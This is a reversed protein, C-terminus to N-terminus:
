KRLDFVPDGRGFDLMENENGLDFMGDEPKSLDSCFSLVHIFGATVRISELGVKGDLNFVSDGRSFDFIADEEDPEFMSGEGGLKFVVDEKGFIFVADEPKLMDFCSPSIPSSTAIVLNSKSKGAKGILEFEPDEKGFVFVSYGGGLKFM